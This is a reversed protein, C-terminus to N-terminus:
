CEATERVVPEHVRGFRTKWLNRSLAVEKIKWYGRKEKFDDLLQKCRRGGSRIVKIIGGRKGKIFPKLLCNVLL